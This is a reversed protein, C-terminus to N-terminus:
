ADSDRYLHAHPPLRPVVGQLDVLGRIQSQAYGAGCLAKTAIELPRKWEALFDAQPVSVSQKSRLIAETGGHVRSWQANVAVAFSDWKVDWVAAFSNSPWCIRRHGEKNKLLDNCLIVIDDVMLSVDYKYSLPIFAQNWAMVMYETYMPFVTQLADSLSEDGPDCERNTRPNGTQIFFEIAM